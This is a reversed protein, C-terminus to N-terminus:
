MEFGEFQGPYAATIEERNQISDRELKDINHQHKLEFLDKLVLLGLTILIYLLHIVITVFINVVVMLCINETQESSYGGYLLTLVLYLMFISSQDNLAETINMSKKYYPQVGFTFM